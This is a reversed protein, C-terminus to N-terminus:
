RSLLCKKYYYLEYIFYNPNKFTQALYKLVNKDWTFHFPALIYISDMRMSKNVESNRRFVISLSYRASATLTMTWKNVNATNVTDGLTHTPPCTAWAIPVRAVCTVGTIPRCRALPTCSRTDSRRHCYLLAVPSVAPPRGGSQLRLSSSLGYLWQRSLITSM